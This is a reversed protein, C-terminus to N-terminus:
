KYKEPRQIERLGSSEQSTLTIRVVWAVSACVTWISLNAERFMDKTNNYQFLDNSFVGLMYVGEMIDM